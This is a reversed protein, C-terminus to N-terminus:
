YSLPCFQLDANQREKSQVDRSAGSATMTLGPPRSWPDQRSRTTGAGGLAGSQRRTSTERHDPIPLAREAKSLALLAARQAELYGAVYEAHRRSVVEVEAHEELKERAYARTTDLLRHQAPTEDIQTAILSKEVL